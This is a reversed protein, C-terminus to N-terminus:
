SIAQKHVPSKGRPFRLPHLLAAAGVLSNTPLVAHHIPGSAGPHPCPGAPHQGSCPAGPMLENEIWGAGTGDGRSEAGILIISVYAEIKLLSM